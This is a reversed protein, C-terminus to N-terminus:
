KSIVGKITSLRRSVTNDITQSDIEVKIGGILAEDTKFEPIVTKGYKKSLSDTIDSKQKESLAKASTIVATLSNDHACKLEFFDSIIDPLFTTVGKECTLKILSIIPEPYLSFASDVSSLRESLPLAPSSLFDAYEPNEKFLAGIEALAASFEEIKGGDTAILFLAKAFEKSSNM